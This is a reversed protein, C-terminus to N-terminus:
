SPKPDDSSPLGYRERLVKAEKTRGPFSGALAHWEVPGAAKAVLTDRQHDKGVPPFIDGHRLVGEALDIRCEFRHATAAM